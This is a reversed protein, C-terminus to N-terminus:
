RSSPMEGNAHLGTGDGGRDRVHIQNSREREKRLREFEADFMRDLRRLHMRHVARFADQVIAHVHFEDLGIRDAAFALKRIWAAFDYERPEKAAKTVEGAVPPVKTV